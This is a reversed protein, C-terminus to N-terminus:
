KEVGKRIAKFFFLTCFFMIKIDFGNLDSHRWKEPMINQICSTHARVRKAETKAQCEVVESAVSAASTGTKERGGLLFWM